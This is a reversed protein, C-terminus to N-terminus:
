VKKMLALIISYDRYVLAGGSGTSWGVSDAPPHVGNAMGTLHPWPM